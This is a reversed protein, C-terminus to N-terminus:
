WYSAQSIGFSFSQVVHNKHAQYQFFTQSPAKNKKWYIKYRMHFHASKKELWKSKPFRKQITKFARHTIRATKFFLLVIAMKKYNKVCKTMSALECPVLSCAM